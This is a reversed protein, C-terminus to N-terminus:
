FIERRPLRMMIGITLAARILAENELMMYSPFILSLLEIWTILM